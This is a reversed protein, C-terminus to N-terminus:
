YVDSASERIPCFSLLLLSTGKQSSRSYAKLEIINAKVEFWMHKPQFGGRCWVKATGTELAFLLNTSTQNNGKDLTVWFYINEVCAVSVMFASGTRFEKYNCGDINISSILENGPIFVIVVVVIVPDTLTISQTQFLNVAAKCQYECDAEDSGDKCDM